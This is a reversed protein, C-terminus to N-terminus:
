RAANKIGKRAARAPGAKARGEAPIDVTPVYTLLSILFMFAIIAFGFLFAAPRGGSALVLFIAFLFGLIVYAVQKKEYSKRAKYYKPFCEKCVTPRYPNSVRFTHSNLWRIALVVNDVRIDLGDKHEGCIICRPIKNAM